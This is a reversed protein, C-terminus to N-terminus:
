SPPCPTPSIAPLFGRGRALRLSGEGGGWLQQVLVRFMVRVGARGGGHQGAAGVPVVDRAGLINGLGGAIGTLGQLAGSGLWLARHLVLGEPCPDESRCGCGSGAETDVPSPYPAAWALESVSRRLRNMRSVGFGLWPSLLSALVGAWHCPQQGAVVVPHGTAPGGAAYRAYGRPSSAWLRSFRRSSDRGQGRAHPQVM